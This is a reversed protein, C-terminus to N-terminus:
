WRFWAKKVPAEVVVPPLPPVYLRAPEGAVISSTDYRNGTVFVRRLRPEKATRSDMTATGLIEGRRWPFTVVADPAILQWLIDVTVPLPKIDWCIERENALSEFQVYAMLEPEPLEEFLRRRMADPHQALDKELCEARERAKLQQAPKWTRGNEVTRAAELERRLYEETPHSM